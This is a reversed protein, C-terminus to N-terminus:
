REDLSLLSRPSSSGVQERLLNGKEQGEKEEMIQQQNAGEVGQNTTSHNGDATKNL